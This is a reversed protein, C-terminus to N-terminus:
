MKQSSFLFSCLPKPRRLLANQDISDSLLSVPRKQRSFTIASGSQGRLPTPLLGASWLKKGRKDKRKGRRRKEKRGGKKERREM